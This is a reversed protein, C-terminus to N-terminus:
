TIVTPAPTKKPKVKGKTLITIIGGAIISSILGGFMWKKWNPNLVTGPKPKDYYDRNLVNEVEKARGSDPYGYYRSPQGLIYAPADFDIVRDAALRDLTSVWNSSM